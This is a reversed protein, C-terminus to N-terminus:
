GGPFALLGEDALENPIGIRRVRALRVDLQATERQPTTERDNSVHAHSAGEMGVAGWVRAGRVNLPVVM